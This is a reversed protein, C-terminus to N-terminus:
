CCCGARVVAAEVGAPRVAPAAARVAGPAAGGGPASASAATVTRAAGTGADQVEFTVVGAADAVLVGSETRAGATASRDRYADGDAAFGRAALETGDAADIFRQELAGGTNSATVALANGAGLVDGLADLGLLTWAGDFVPYSGIASGTASFRSVLLEGSTYQVAVAFDNGVATIDALLADNGAIITRSSAAGTAAAVLDVVVEGTAADRGLLALNGNAMEAVASVALSSDFRSLESGNSPALRVLHSSADRHAVVVFADSTALATVPSWAADRVTVDALTRGGSADVIRLVPGGLTDVLAAVRSGSAALDVLKETAASGLDIRDAGVSFDTDSDKVFLAYTGSMTVLLGYDPGGAGDLDGLATVRAVSSADCADGQGNNDTDYQHVNTFTACNDADDSVTDRDSDGVDPRTGKRFEAANTLRDGDADLVGDSANRANLGYRQEWADPMADGDDDLDANDGVGDGDFDTSETPDAPFADDRNAVGDGDADGDPNPAMPYSKATGVTQKHDPENSTATMYVAIDDRVGITGDGVIEFAVGMQEGPALRDATCEVRRRTLTCAPNEASGTIAFLGFPGIELGPELDATFTLGTADLVPSVDNPELNYLRMVFTISEGDVIPVTWENGLEDTETPADDATTIVKSVRPEIQVTRTALATVNPDACSALRTVGPKDSACVTITKTGSSFYTAEDVLVASGGSAQYFNPAGAPPEQGPPLARGSAFPEGPGWDIGYVHMEARDVDTLTVEAKIPFGAGYGDQMDAFTLVPVDNVPALNIRAEAVESADVGDSVRFTFRDEGYFNEDPTFTFDPGPGSLRGHEPPTVITYVLNPQDDEDPDFATLEFDLPTDELGEFVQGETAIPARQNRTVAISVTAEQSTALGDSVTYRFSDIGKFNRNSRYKVIATQQPTASEDEVDTIPTTEFVHLLDRERDLVYFNSLNASVDQPKGFDGLVFCSGDCESVAEGAFYGDSTFRQVRFNEYDTVYLVGNADMDIGRPENFQGIGSGSTTSVGCLAATCTFGVSKKAVEDCARTETLNSECRGLWGIFEGPTFTVSDGDREVTSASFKYVRDNGTDSVYLNGDADMVLDKYNIGGAQLDGAQAIEGLLTPIGNGDTDLADYAVLANRGDTVYLVDNSDAVM